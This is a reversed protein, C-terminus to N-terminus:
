IWCPRSARPPVAYFVPKNQSLVLVTEGDSERMIRVPAKAFNDLSEALNALVTVTM